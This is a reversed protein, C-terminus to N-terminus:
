LYDLTVTMSGFFGRVRVREWGDAGSLRLLPFLGRKLPTCPHTGREQHSPGGATQRALIFPLTNM